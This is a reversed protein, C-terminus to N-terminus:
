FVDIEIFRRLWQLTGLLEEYCSVTIMQTPVITTKLLNLKLNTVSSGLGLCSTLTRVRVPCTYIEINTATQRPELRPVPAMGRIGRSTLRTSWMSTNSQSSVVIGQPHAQTPLCGSGAGHIMDRCSSEHPVHNRSPCILTRLVLDWFIGSIFTSGWASLFVHKSM